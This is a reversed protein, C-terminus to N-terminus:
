FDCLYWNDPEDWVHEEAPVAFLFRGNSPHFHRVIRIRIRANDPSVQETYGALGIHSRRQCVTAGIQRKAPAEALM